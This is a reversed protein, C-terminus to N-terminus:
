HYDVGCICQSSTNARYMWTPCDTDNEIDPLSNLSTQIYEGPSTSTAIGTSLNNTSESIAIHVLVITILSVVRCQM